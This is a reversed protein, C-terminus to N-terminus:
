GGAVPQFIHVLSDEDLLDDAKLVRGNCSVVPQKVPPIALHEILQRVSVPPQLDLRIGKEPDYGPHLERLSSFLKITLM